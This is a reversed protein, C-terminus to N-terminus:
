GDKITSGVLVRQEIGKLIGAEKLEERVQNNLIERTKNEFVTIAKSRISVLDDREIARAKEIYSNVFSRVAWVTLKPNM